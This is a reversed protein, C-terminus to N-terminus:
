RSCGEMGWGPLGGSDLGTGERSGVAASGTQRGRCGGCPEGWGQARPAGASSAQLDTNAITLGPGGLPVPGAASCAGATGPSYICNGGWRGTWGPGEGWEEPPDRRLVRGLACSGARGPSPGRREDGSVWACACAASPWGPGSRLCRGPRAVFSRPPRDLPRVGRRKGAACRGARPERRGAGGGGAGAM